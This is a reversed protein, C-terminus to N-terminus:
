YWVTKIVTAKSSSKFVPFMYRGIKSKKKLIAKAIQLGKYKWVFKLNLSDIDAFLDAPIKIPLTNSIYVLKPLFAMKVISLRKVWPCSSNRYKNINEKIEKLLTKYKKTYLDGAGKTLNIGSCKIRESTVTFPVRKKFKVPPNSVALIYFSM